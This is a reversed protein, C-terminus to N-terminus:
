PNKKKKRCTHRQRHVRDVEAQQFFSAFSWVCDHPTEARYQRRGVLGVGQTQCLEVGAGGAM